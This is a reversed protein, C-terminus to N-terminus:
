APFERFNIIANVVSLWRDRDQALEIWNMGWGDWMKFILKLLRGNVGVDELHDRQRLNKWWTV